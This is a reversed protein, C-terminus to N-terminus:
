QWVTGGRGFTDPYQGPQAIYQENAAVGEKPVTEGFAALLKPALADVATRQPPVAVGLSALQAYPNPAVQPTVQPSVQPATQPAAQPTVHPAAQPAQPAQPTQAAMQAFVQSLTIFDNATM